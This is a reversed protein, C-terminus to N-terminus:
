YCVWLYECYGNWYCQYAWLCAGRYTTEAADRLSDAMAAITADGDSLALAEDLIAGLDIPEGSADLVRAEVSTMMKVAALLVLPDGKARGYHLMQTATELTLRQDTQEAVPNSQAAAALPQLAAALTFALIAVRRLM